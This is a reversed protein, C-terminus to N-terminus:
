LCEHAHVAYTAHPRTVLLARLRSDPAPARIAPTRRDGSHRIAAWGWPPADAAPEAPASVVAAPTTAPTTQGLAVAAVAMALAAGFISKLIPHNPKNSMPVTRWFFYPQTIVRIFDPLSLSEM